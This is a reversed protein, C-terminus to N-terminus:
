GCVFLRVNDGQITESTYAALDCWNRCKSRHKQVTSVLAHFVNRLQVLRKPPRATVVKGPAERENLGARAVVGARRGLPCPSILLGWSVILGRLVWARVEGIFGCNVIWQIRRLGLFSRVMRGTINTQRCTQQSRQVMPGTVHCEFESKV